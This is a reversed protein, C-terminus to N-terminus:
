PNASRATKRVVVPRLLLWSCSLLYVLAGGTLALNRPTADALAAASFFVSGLCFFVALRRRGRNFAFAGLELLACMTFILALLAYCYDLIVPDSSLTRFDRALRVGFFIVPLFFLAPHLRKGQLNGVAMAAWCVATFIGALALLRDSASEPSFFMIGSGLLVGFAGLMMGVAAETARSSIAQRVPCRRLRWAFLALLVVVAVTFYTFFGAGAGPRIMGTEDYATLLQQRRLFFAAASLAAVIGLVPGRRLKEEMFDGVSGNM